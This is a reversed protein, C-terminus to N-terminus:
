EIFRGEDDINPPDCDIVIKEFDESAIADLDANMNILMSSVKIYEESKRNIIAQLEDLDTKLARQVQNLITIIAPSM